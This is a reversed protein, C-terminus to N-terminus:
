SQTAKWAKVAAMTASIHSQPKRDTHSLLIQGDPAIVFSTRSSLMDKGVVQYTADYQAAVKAGADAAVAFKDRCESRSFEAVRDINGATVGVVQAGLAAFEDSAEAFLNAEITCGPTFAAPFFYLVVPGSKLADHLTFPFEKGAKAATLTFDPAKAGQSLPAVDQTATQLAVAGVGVALVLAATLAIKGAKNM